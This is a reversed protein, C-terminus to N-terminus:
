PPSLLPWLGITMTELFCSYCSPSHQSIDFSLPTHLRVQVFVRHEKVLALPLTHHLAYLTLDMPRSLSTAGTGIGCVGAAVVLATAAAADVIRDADYCEHM